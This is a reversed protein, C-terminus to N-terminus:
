KSEGYKLLLEHMRKFDRSNGFGYSRGHRVALLMEEETVDSHCHSNYRILMRRLFELDDPDIDRDSM